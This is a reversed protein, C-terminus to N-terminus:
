SSRDEGARSGPGLEHLRAAVAVRAAGDDGATEAGLADIMLLGASTRISTSRRGATASRMSTTSSRRRRSSPITPGTPALSRAGSISPTPAWRPGVAAGLRDIMATIDPTDPKAPAPQSAAAAASSRARRMVCVAGRSARAMM